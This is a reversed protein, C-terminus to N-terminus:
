DAAHGGVCPEVSQFLLGEISEFVTWWMRLFRLCGTERLARSYLTLGCPALWRWRGACGCSYSWCGRRIWRWAPIPQLTPHGRPTPSRSPFHAWVQVACSEGLGVLHRRCPSCEHHPDPPLPHTRPNSHQMHGGVYVACRAGRERARQPHIASPPSMTTNEFAFCWLTQHVGSTGKRDVSHRASEHLSCGPELTSGAGRSVRYNVTGGVM